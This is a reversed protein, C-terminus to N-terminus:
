KAHAALAEKIQAKVADLNFSAGKQMPPFDIATKALEAVREQVLVFRWFEFAWWNYADMSQGIGTREFPDLRLNVLGPWGPKEAAGLWGDPQTLFTYKFNGIRAAGLTSEAFYWIENRASDGGNALMDTQDYGDLHVKYTKGNLAKGDKLEEVINPNGAAAVFTPFFDMGSMVGNIVQNPEIKGPWKLIMPSRFGGEQVM